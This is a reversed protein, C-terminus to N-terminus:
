KVDIWLNVNQYPIDEGNKYLLFEVKQNDGVKQMAFSLTQEWKQQDAIVIPGINKFTIGDISIELRYSMDEHEHNVIVLIVSADQGVALNRPYNAAKGELGLIYLETFREGVKPNAVTYILTGIAALIFLVLIISLAKDQKGFSRWGTIDVDFSICFREAEPLRRRRLWAIISMVLIFLSITILVPFLRIGYPMYNLALGLLPVVVISLGFSFAVREIGNLDEKSPFLATIMTYGPFFLLFPLGMIIRLVDSPLLIIVVALLACLIIIVLLDYKFNVKM